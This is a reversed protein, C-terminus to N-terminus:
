GIFITLPFSPNAFSDGCLTLRMVIAATLRFDLRKCIALRFPARAFALPHVGVNM